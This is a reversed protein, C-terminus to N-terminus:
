VPIEMLRRVIAELVIEYSEPHVWALALIDKALETAAAETM